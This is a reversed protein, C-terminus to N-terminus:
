RILKHGTTISLSNLSITIILIFTFKGVCFSWVLHLRLCAPHCCLLFCIGEDPFCNHVNHVIIRNYSIIILYSIVICWNYCIVTVLMNLSFVVIKSNYTIVINYCSDSIVKLIFLSYSVERM